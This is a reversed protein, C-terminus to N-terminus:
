LLKYRFLMHCGQLQKVGSLFNHGIFLSMVRFLMKAAQEKLETGRRKNWSKRNWFHELNPCDFPPFTGAEKKKSSISISALKTGVKRFPVTNQKLHFEKFVEKLYYKFITGAASKRSKTKATWSLFTDLTRHSSSHSSFQSWIKRRRRIFFEQSRRKPQWKFFAHGHPM